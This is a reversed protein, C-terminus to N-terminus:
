DMIPGEGGCLQRVEMMMYYRDHSTLTAGKECENMADDEILHNILEIIRSKKAQKM